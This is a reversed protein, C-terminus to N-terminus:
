YTNEIEDHYYAMKELYMKFHEETSMEKKILKIMNDDIPIPFGSKIYLSYFNYPKEKGIMELFKDFTNIIEFVDDPEIIRNHRYSMQRPLFDYSLPILRQGLPFLLSINRNVLGHSIPNRYTDKIKILNDYLLKLNKNYYISFILKFQERWEKKLFDSFKIESQKFGYLAILLFELLSFFSNSLAYFYNAITNEYTKIKTMKVVIHTKTNKRTFIYNDFDKKSELIKDKYFSYISFLTFYTNNLYFGRQNVKLTLEERLINDLRKSATIIKAKLRKALSLGMQDSKFCLIDFAYNKYDKIVFNYMKHECYTHWTCKDLPGYNTFNLIDFLIIKVIYSPPLDIKPFIYEFKSYNNSSNIQLPLVDQFVTKIKNVADEM